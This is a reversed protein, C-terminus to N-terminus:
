TLDNAIFPNPEPLALGSLAQGQRNPLAERWQTNFWPSVTESEVDPASYFRLMNDPTLADLYIQQRERDMGDMRYPAYQVDEVPYRSLSMALRMAEQQPAGHQQFRFAQENLSKQEDYRWNDIGEERIQDIAAFLTAEIDD